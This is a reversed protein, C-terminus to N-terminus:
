REVKPRKARGLVTGASGPIPTDCLQAEVGAEKLLRMIEKLEEKDM